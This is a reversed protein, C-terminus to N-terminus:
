NPKRKQFEVIATRFDAIIKPSNQDGLLRIVICRYCQTWWRDEIDISNNFNLLANRLNSISNAKRYAWWLELYWRGLYYYFLASEQHESPVQNLYTRSVKIAAAYNANNLRFEFAERLKCEFM